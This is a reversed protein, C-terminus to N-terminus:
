CGKLTRCGAQNASRRELNTVEVLVGPGGEVGELWAM